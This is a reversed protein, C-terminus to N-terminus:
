KEKQEGNIDIEYSNLFTKWAFLWVGLILASCGILIQINMGCEHNVIGSGIAILILGIIKM